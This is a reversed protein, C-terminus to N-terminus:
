EILNAYRKLDVDEIPYENIGVTSANEFIRAVDEKFDILVSPLPGTDRLESIPTNSLANVANIASIQMRLNHNFVPFVEFEDVYPHGVPEIDLTFEDTNFNHGVVKSGNLAYHVHSSSDYSIQAGGFIHRRINQHIINNVWVANLSSRGLIHVWNREPGIMGDRWMHLLLRVTIDPNAAVPGAFSWGEFNFEKVTDYWEVAQGYNKGQIVNLLKTRGHTREEEIFACNYFTENLCERFTTFIYNSSGLAWAPFDLTMSYDAFTESWNLIRRRIKDAQAGHIDNRFIESHAFVGTGIQYGGSDAILITSSRDRQTIMCEDVRARPIDLYAHGASM